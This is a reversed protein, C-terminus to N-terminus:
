LFRSSLPSPHGSEIIMHKTNDILKKADDGLLIFIVNDCRSSITNIISNTYSAWLKKHSNPNGKIVTLSTNLLLIYQEARDNLNSNVREISLDDYLENFINKLSPPTKINGDVSFCLGM